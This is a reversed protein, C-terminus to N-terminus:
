DKKRYAGRQPSAGKTRWIGAGKKKKLKRPYNQREGKQGEGISCLFGWWKLKKRENEKKRL